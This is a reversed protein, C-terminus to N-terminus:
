GARAEALAVARARGRGTRLVYPRDAAFGAYDGRGLETVREVPGTILAGEVVLVHLRTGPPRATAEEDHRAPLELEALECEGELSLAVISRWAGAASTSGARVVTLEPAEGADLLAAVPVGLAGALTGLTEITPNSRGGEIASLTAKSMGTSRALESLSMRRAVRLRRAHAALTAATSLQAIM